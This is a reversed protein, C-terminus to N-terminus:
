NLRALLVGAVVAVFVVIVAIIPGWLVIATLDNMTRLFLGERPASRFPQACSPCAVAQSSVQQGCAPCSVLAIRAM